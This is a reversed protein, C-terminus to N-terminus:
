ESSMQAEQVIDLSIKLCGGKKKHTFDQSSKRILPEKMRHAGAERKGESLEARTKRNISLHGRKKNKLEILLQLVEKKSLARVGGMDRLFLRPQGQYGLESKGFYRVEKWHRKEDADVMERGECAAKLIGQFKVRRKEKIKPPPIIGKAREYRVGELSNEKKGEKEDRGGNGRRSKVKKETTKLRL